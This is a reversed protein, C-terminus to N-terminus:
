EEDESTTWEKITGEIYSVNYKDAITKLQADLAEPTHCGDHANQLAHLLDFHADFWRCCDFRNYLDAVTTGQYLGEPQDMRIDYEEDSILCGVACMLGEKSRYKCDGLSESRRGQEALHNVVKDFISQASNKDFDM